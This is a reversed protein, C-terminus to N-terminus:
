NIETGKKEMEYDYTQKRQRCTEKQKIFKNQKTCSNM